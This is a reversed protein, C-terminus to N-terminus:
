LFGEKRSSLLEIKKGSPEQSRQFFFPQRTHLLSLVLTPITCLSALVKKFDSKSDVTQKMLIM